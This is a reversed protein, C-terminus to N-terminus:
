HGTAGPDNTEVTEALAFASVLPPRASVSLHLRLANRYPGFQAALSAESIRISPKSGFVHGIEIDDWFLSEGIGVGLAKAIAEKASFIGAYALVPSAAREAWALEDPRCFQKTFDSGFETVSASLRPVLCIDHGIGIIM